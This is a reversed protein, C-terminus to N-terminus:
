YDKTLVMSFLDQFLMVSNNCEKFLLNFGCCLIVVCRYPYNGQSLNAGQGNHVRGRAGLGGPYAGPRAHGQVYYTTYLILLISLAAMIVSKYDKNFNGEFM